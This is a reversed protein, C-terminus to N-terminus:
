GDGLLPVEGDYLTVRIWSLVGRIYCGGNSLFGNAMDSLTWTGHCHEALAYSQEM